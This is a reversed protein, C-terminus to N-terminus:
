QAHANRNRLSHSQLPNTVSWEATRLPMSVAQSAVLTRKLHVDTTGKAIKARLATDVLGMAAYTKAAFEAFAAEINQRQPHTKWAPVQFAPHAQKPRLFTESKM